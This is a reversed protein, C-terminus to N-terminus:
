LIVASNTNSPVQFLNFHRDANLLSPVDAVKRPLRNWHEATKVPSCHKGTGLKFREQFLKTGSKCKRDNTGLLTFSLVETQKRRLAAPLM